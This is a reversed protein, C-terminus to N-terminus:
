VFAIVEPKLDKFLPVEIEDEEDNQEESDSESDSLNNERDVSVKGSYRSLEDIFIVENEDVRKIINMVLVVPIRSPKDKNTNTPVNDFAIKRKVTKPVVENLIKRKAHRPQGDENKQKVDTNEKRADRSTNQEKSEELSDSTVFGFYNDLGDSVNQDTKVARSKFPSYDDIGFLSDNNNRVSNNRNGETFDLISKQVTPTEVRKEQTKNAVLKEAFTADLVINQDVTPLSNDKIKVLHPNYKIPLSPRWPTYETKNVNLMTSNADPPQSINLSVDSTNISSSRNSFESPPPIVVNSLVFVKQKSAENEKADSKRKEVGETKSKILNEVDQMFTNSRVDLGLHELALKAKSTWTVKKEKQGRSPQVKFSVDSTRQKRKKKRRKQNEDEFFEYVDMAKKGKKPSERFHKRYVPVHASESGSNEKLSTDSQSGSLDCYNVTKPKRLSRGPVDSLRPVNVVCKSQFKQDQKEPEEQATSLPIVNTKDRLPTTAVKGKVTRKPKVM